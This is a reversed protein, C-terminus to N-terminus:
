LEFIANQPAASGSPPTTSSTPSGVDATQWLYFAGVSRYPRWCEALTEMETPDPMKPLSYLRQFAKRVALDGVPLVDARHLSFMKFMHVTWPGIGKVATLSEMLADDDMLLITEDSLKGDAFHSALDQLYSAKRESLGAKRMEPMTLQQVAEPTVAAEEEGCLAVVRKLIASAASGALQQFVISRLLARFAGTFERQKPLTHSAIATALIPDAARLHEVAAALAAEGYMSAIGKAAVPVAAGPENSALADLSPAAAKSRQQASATRPRSVADVQQNAAGEEVQQQARNHLERAVISRSLTDGQELAAAQRRTLRRPQRHIPVLLTTSPAVPAELTGKPVKPLCLRRTRSTTRVAAAEPTGLPLAATIITVVSDVAAPFGGAPLCVPPLTVPPMAAPKAPPPPGSLTFLQRRAPARM